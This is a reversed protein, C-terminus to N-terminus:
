NHSSWRTLHRRRVFGPSSEVSRRAAGEWSSVCAAGEPRSSVLLPAGRALMGPSRSDPLLRPPPSAPLGVDMWGVVRRWAGLLGEAQQIQM